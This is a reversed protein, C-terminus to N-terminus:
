GGVLRIGAGLNTSVRAAAERVVDALVRRQAGLIQPRLGSVSLGGIVSGTHDFLPAGIAAAGEIVDGDSVTVGHRRAHALEARIEDPDVAARPTLRELPGKGLYAEIVPEGGWALAAKGAAGVHLPLTGGLKLGFTHEYRGLLQDVCVCHDDRPVCLYVTLGTENCLEELIPRARVRLDLRHYLRLGLELLGIGLEYTGVASRECLRHRELTALVRRATPKPLDTRAALEGLAVGRPEDALVALLAVARDIVQIGLREPPHLENRM